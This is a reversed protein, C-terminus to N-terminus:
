RVVLSMRELEGVLAKAVSVNATVPYQKKGFNFNLNMTEGVKQVIGGTAMKQVSM